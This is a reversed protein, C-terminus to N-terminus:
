NDAADTSLHWTIGYKDTVTGYLPSWFTEQLAMGEEGEDTLKEWVQRTKEVDSIAIAITVQNGIQHSESHPGPFTDSLMLHSDGIKLLAHLVRSKAEEPVSSEPSGPMEGFTQVGIVEADLAEQYFAIAEQGKGDFILYPNIGKIM